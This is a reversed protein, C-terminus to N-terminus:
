QSSTVSLKRGRRESSQSPIKSIAGLRRHICLRSRTGPGERILINSPTQFPLVCRYRIVPLVLIQFSIILFIYQVTEDVYETDKPTEQWNEPLNHSPRPCAPCPLALEGPGTGKVGSVAHARGGRKLLKMHRWMRIM